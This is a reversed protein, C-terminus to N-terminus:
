FKLERWSCLLCEFTNTFYSLLGAASKRQERITWLDLVKDIAKIKINRGLVTHACM